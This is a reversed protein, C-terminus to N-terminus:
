ALHHGLRSDLNIHGVSPAGYDYPFDAIGNSTNLAEIKAPAM